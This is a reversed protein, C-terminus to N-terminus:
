RLRDDLDKRGRVVFALIFMLECMAHALHNIGTEPDNDEGAWWAILHRQTADFCRSFSLGGEWNRAAYKDAGFKLV